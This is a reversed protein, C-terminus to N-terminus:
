AQKGIVYQYIMNMPIILMGLGIMALWQSMSLPVLQMTAGGFQVCLFTGGVVLLGMWIFMPNRGLGRFVNNGSSRIWLGNCLAMVILLVFRGSAYQAADNFVNYIMPMTTLAFLFVGMVVMWIIQLLMDRTILPTNHGGVPELLYEPHPPENGFAISNLSDIVINIILIQVACLAGMGVFMPFLISIIILIFNVSLQFKLFSSVNHVFTRGLLVSNVVSVFNNDTIIIDSAAKCVDTSTGMAFGVDAAKLAAADNTGDGCMGISMGCRRAMKVIRLKTHPTARAVIRIRPLLRSAMADPMADFEDACIAIDNPQSIIECEQAIVRATDLNDGTIMMIQVGSQHLKHVVDRVGPRIEDRMAIMSIFVMEDFKNDYYATAVVRMARRTNKAILNQVRTKNIRHKKGAVDICYRAHALIVEPAAVVYTRTRGNYAVTVSSYKHVSDFLTRSVVHSKNLIRQVHTAWKGVTALIARETSNGGIAHGHADLAARNDLVVCLGFQQMADNNESIDFGIDTGDALCNAVPVLDGYTITGTKDTCLLQINGAQPIKHPNKALINARIMKRVNQGTIISVIFPLGEPVAAVFITLAVTIAGMVVFLVDRWNTIGNESIHMGILIICIIVAAWIGIRGVITALRDLQRQLTTKPEQINNLENLVRANETDLGVRAVRMICEGSQVSTGAFVHNKDVYTAANIPANRNYKFRPVPHKYVEASEGNLIANNVGIEGDIVYGDAPVVQGATLIVVDDVVIQACPIQVVRGNRVVSATSFSARRQLEITRRQSVRRTIVNVVCIVVLVIAIGLAESIDGYGVLYLGVFAGLMGLLMLNIKDRFVDGLFYWVSHAVPEPMNNTGYKIRNARVRRNDLGKFKM